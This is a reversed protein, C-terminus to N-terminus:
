LTPVPGDRHLIKNILAQVLKVAEEV